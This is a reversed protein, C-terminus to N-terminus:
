INFEAIDRMEKGTSVYYINKVSFKLSIFSGIASLIGATKRIIHYFWFDFTNSIIDKGAFFVGRYFVCFLFLGIGMPFVINRWIKWKWLVATLILFIYFLIFM